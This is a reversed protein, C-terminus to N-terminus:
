NLPIHATALCSRCRRQLMDSLSRTKALQEVRRQKLTREAQQHNDTLRAPKSNHLSRPTSFLSPSERQEVALFGNGLM